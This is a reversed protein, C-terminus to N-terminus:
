VGFQVKRMYFIPHQRGSVVVLIVALKIESVPIPRMFKKPTLKNNVGLERNHIYELGEEPHHVTGVCEITSTCQTINSKKNLALAMTNM